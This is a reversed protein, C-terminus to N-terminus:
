DHMFVLTPVATKMASKIAATVPFPSAVDNVEGSYMVGVIPEDVSTTTTSVGVYEHGAPLSVYSGGSVGLPKHKNTTSNKIIIHGVRVFEEGFDEVDLVKGGDIGAIYKRIVIPDNGFGFAEKFSM